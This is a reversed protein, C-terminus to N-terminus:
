DNHDHVLTGLPGGGGRPTKLGIPCFDYLTGTIINQRSVLVCM